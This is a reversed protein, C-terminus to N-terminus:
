YNRLEFLSELIADVNGSKSDREPDRALYDNLIQEIDDLTSQYNPDSSKLIFECDPEGCTKFVKIEGTTLDIKYHESYGTYALKIYRENEKNTVIVNWFDRTNQPGLKFSMELIDSCYGKDELPSNSDQKIEKKGDKENPFRGCSCSIVSIAPITLSVTM